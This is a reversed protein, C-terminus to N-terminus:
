FITTYSKNEETKPYAGLYIRIGPNNVGQEKSKQKVYDLYEQLEEISYWFERTDIYGQGDEIEKGRSKKWINQLARGEEPKLCKRPQDM